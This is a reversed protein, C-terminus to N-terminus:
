RPTFASLEDRHEAYHGFTNAGIWRQVRDQAVLADPLDRVIKVLQRHAAELEDVIAEPGVLRREEVARANFANVAADSGFDPVEGGATVIRLRRAAEEEWAAVHALLDKYTWGTSTAQTLGTRGIHRVAARLERWGNEMQEVLEAKTYTPFADPL